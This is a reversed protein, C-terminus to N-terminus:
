ALFVWARTCRPPNLPGESETPPPDREPAPSSFDSPEEQQQFIALVQRRATAEERRAVRRRPAGNGFVLHTAFVEDTRPIGDGRRRHELARKAWAQAFAAAEAPKSDQAAASRARCAEPSVNAM